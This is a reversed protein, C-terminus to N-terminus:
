KVFIERVGGHKLQRNVQTSKFQPPLLLLSPPPTVSLSIVNLNGTTRTRAHADKRQLEKFAM